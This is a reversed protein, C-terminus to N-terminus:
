NNNLAALMGTIDDTELYDVGMAGYHAVQSPDSTQYLMWQWPGAWLETGAPIKELNCCLMEPQLLEAGARTEDDYHRIVWGIKYGEMERAVTLANYDFSIIVSQERIPEIADFIKLLTEGIGFRALSERKVEVFTKVQPYSRLLEVAEYLTAITTSQFRNGFREPQFARYDALDKFESELLSKRAGSMRLLSDDHFMVPVQDATLQVDFEVAQAGAELASALSALTNEPYNTQDGRHAVLVPKKVEMYNALLEGAATNARLCLM